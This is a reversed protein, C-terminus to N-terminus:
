CLLLYLRLAVWADLAAYRVQEPSLVDVSWDSCTCSNDKLLHCGLLNLAAKRLSLTQARDWSMGLAAASAKQVDLISDQTVAIGSRLLKKTDKSSAYGVKVVEPNVLMMQVERPLKSGLRGLQLVYVRRSAPFALQMVSIPNDSGYEWDPVWELDFAVVDATAADSCLSKCAGSSTSNVVLVDAPEDGLSAVRGTMGWPQVRKQSVAQRWGTEVFQSYGENFWMNPPHSVGDQYWQSQGEPWGTPELGVYPMDFYVAM